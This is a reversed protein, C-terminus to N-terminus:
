GFISTKTKVEIINNTEEVEIEFKNVRVEIDIPVGTTIRIRKLGPDYEIENFDYAGVRETDRVSYDAVHHIKLFCEAVPVEKRSLLLGREVVRSREPMERGFRISLTLTAPDYLIDDVDFWCDHILDLVAPIRRPDKIVLRQIMGFHYARRDAGVM